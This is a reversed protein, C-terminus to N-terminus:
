RVKYMVVMNDLIFNDIDGTSSGALTRSEIHLRNGGSRLVGADVLLVNGNWSDTNPTVPIGGAITSDNITIVNRRSNVARSQFMLVAAESSNVNPCAFVFDKSAGEFPVDPEISRLYSADDGFGHRSAMVVAFNAARGSRGKLATDIRGRGKTAALFDQEWRYRAADVQNAFDHVKHMNLTLVIFAQRWQKQSVSVDPVRPGEQAIFDGINLRVPTASFDVSGPLSILDRLLTFEGVQDPALLGMLYLDLNCYPREQREGPNNLFVRRFNGNPLELWDNHDYDMPSRGDDLRDAWHGPVGDRLHDSMPAGTEPDRYRAFAGFRHGFEHLMTSPWHQLSSQKLVQFSQLRRTRWDAREDWDGYGIGQVDNFIISSYSNFVGPLGSETDLFFSVFDYDDGHRTRFLHYAAVFDVYRSGGPRIKIVTGDAQIVCVDGFDRVVRANPWPESEEALRHVRAWSIARMDAESSHATDASLPSVVDTKLGLHETPVVRALDLDSLPRKEMVYVVLAYDTSQVANKIRKPAIDIGIINPDRSYFYERAKRLADNYDLAAPNSFAPRRGPEDGIVAM